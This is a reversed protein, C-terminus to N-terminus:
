KWKFCTMIKGDPGVRNMLNGDKDRQRDTKGEERKRKTSETPEYKDGNIM